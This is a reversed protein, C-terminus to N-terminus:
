RFFVFTIFVFIPLLVAASYGMYGFFSPMKVGAGDAIAKVMFNPGNGIYTNAGMFVCGCSIAVLLPEAIGGDALHLVAPAGGTASTLSQALAVFTVYTPANDLFSSLVGSAWFFHWPERVGLEAGRAKLIAVPVVMTVFIGVFLIAVEIIAHFSFQNRARLDPNTTAYALVAATAMGIEKWPTPLFVSGVVGALWVFNLNGRLRLPEVEIADRRRDSLSERNYHWSDVVFFIALVAGVATAWIPLLRLTWEFPVGRLFGLFLPPDGLPTLLGGINSVIFIFFIVVHKIRARESNTKLLPRILLMSAGTTGVLNALVAGVGLFTTNTLPTAQIDGELVIGGSITYLSALLIIFSVYEILTHALETRGEAGNVLLMVAVPALFLASVIAKNRNKEWFRSAALPVIAISLLLGAFPAGWALSITSGLNM